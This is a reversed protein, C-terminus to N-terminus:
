DSINNQLMYTERFPLTADNHINNGWPQRSFYIHMPHRNGDRVDCSLAGQNAPQFRPWDSSQIKHRRSLPGTM